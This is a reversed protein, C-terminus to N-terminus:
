IVKDEVPNLGADAEKVEAIEKYYNATSLGLCTNLLLDIAMITKPVEEAFPLGWITAVSTYFVALAPLLITGTFKLLDYANNSLKM